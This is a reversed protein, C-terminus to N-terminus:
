KHEKQWKTLEKFLRHEPYVVCAQDQFIEIVLKKSM